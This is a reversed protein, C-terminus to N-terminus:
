GDVRRLALTAGPAWGTFPNEWVARDGVVEYRVGDVEVQDDPHVSVGAPVFLTLGVVVGARGPDNVDDSTRPAVFAGDLVMRTPVGVTPAGYGDPTGDTPRVLVVTTVAAM